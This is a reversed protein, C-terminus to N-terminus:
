VLLELYYSLQSFEPPLLTPPPSRRKWWLFIFFSQYFIRHFPCLKTYPVWFIIKESTRRFNCSSSSDLKLAWNWWFHPPPSKLSAMRFESKSCWFRCTNQTMLRHRFISNIFKETSQIFNVGIMLEKVLRGAYPIHVFCSNRKRMSGSLHNCLFTSFCDMSFCPWTFHYRSLM